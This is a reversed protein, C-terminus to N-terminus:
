YGQHLITCHTCFRRYVGLAASDQKRTIPTYTESVAKVTCIVICWAHMCVYIRVPAYLIYLVYMDTCYMCVSAPYMCMYWTDRQKHALFGAAGTADGQHDTSSLGGEQCEREPPSLAGLVIVSIDWLRSTHYHYLGTILPFKFRPHLLSKYKTSTRTCM